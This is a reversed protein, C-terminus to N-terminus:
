KQLLKKIEDLAADYDPENSVEQVIERYTITGDRDIVFLCRALLRLDKMLVGYRTGVEAAVHDSAVTLATVSEAKCWRDQAFPLDMSVTLIVADPGLDGARENLKRTELSCVSTDLSPVTSLLVVKGRLDSLRVPNLDTGLVQFDPAMDGPGLPESVLEVRNGKMTVAAM